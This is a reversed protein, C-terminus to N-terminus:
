SCGGARDCGEGGCALLLRQVPIGQLLHSEVIEAVDDSTVRGYWAGEPYIVVTTGCACADLCGSRNARMRDKLGRRSLEARFQDLVALGGSASCCSKGADREHVCVFIHREFRQKM